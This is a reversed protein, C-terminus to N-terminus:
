NTLSYLNGLEPPIEGSLQNGGLDLWELGALNGLEPPIEGSLQNNMLNLAYVRGESNVRVGGWEWIPASSLWNYGYEWSKGGTANFLAILTERDRELSTGEPPSTVDPVATPAPTPIPTPTPAGM